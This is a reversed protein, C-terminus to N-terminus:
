VSQDYVGAKDGLSGEVFTLFRMPVCLILAMMGASMKAGLIHQYGTALAEEERSAMIHM